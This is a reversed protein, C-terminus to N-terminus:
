LTRLGSLKEKLRQRARFINVKVDSESIEMVQAIEKYSRGEVDRMHLATRQKEPLQSILNTVLNYKEKSEVLRDPQSSTDLQDHLTEDYSLTQREKLANHDLSLNRCVTMAYSKINEIESVKLENWLRILTEQVIDEADERNQTIRAYHGTVLCDFGRELALDLMLRQTDDKARLHPGTSIHLAM